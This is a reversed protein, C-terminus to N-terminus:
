GFFYRVALTSAVFGALDGILASPLTYSTKKINVAGYYVAITYFTTETSGMMVSAVRGVFSDAGNDRLINEVVALAGSGSIPRLITLPIVEDPMKIISILPSLAKIFYDLAGSNQFMNIAVMLLVLSPLINGTTKIGGKAGEVFSEFIDVKKYMGYSMVAFIFIPIVFDAISM